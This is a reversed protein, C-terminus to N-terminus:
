TWQFSGGCLFAIDEIELRDGVLNTLRDLEAAGANQHLSPKMRIELDLPVFLHETADALAKRFNVQVAIGSGLNKGDGLVAAQGQVIRDRTQAIRTEVRDRAAAGLDEVVFDAVLDGAELAEGFVPDANMACGALEAHPGRRGHHETDAFLELMADVM